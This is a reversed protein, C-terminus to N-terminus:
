GLIGLISGVFKTPDKLVAAVARGIQLAAKAKQTPDNLHATAKHMSALVADREAQNLGPENAVERTVADFDDSTKLDKFGM